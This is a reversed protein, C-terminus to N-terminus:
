VVKRQERERRGLQEILDIPFNLEVQIQNDNQSVQVGQMLEAIEPKQEGAIQGLAILGRAVDALKGASEHDAATAVIRGTVVDALDLTGFITQIGGLNGILPTNQPANSIISAADGAFWFMEEPDLGAIMAALVENTLVSPANGSRVDIVRKLTELSGVAVEEGSLLAVGQEVSSDEREPIMLVVTGEYEVRIPKAETELFAEIGATNFQGVAIIAGDRGPSPALRGTAVVYSIDRKPDVGTRAIFEALDGAIKEGHRGEFRAFIPSAVFKKVNMGFIAHSDAPLYTLADPFGAVSARVGYSNYFALGAVSVVVVALIISASVVSKHRNM